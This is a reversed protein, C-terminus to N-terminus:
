ATSRCPTPAAERYARAADLITRECYVVLPTGFEAALETASVGGVSLEGDEVAARRPFLSLLDASLRGM